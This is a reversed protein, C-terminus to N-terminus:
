CLSEGGIPFEKLLGEPRTDPFVFGLRHLEERTAADVPTIVSAQKKFRALLERIQVLQKKRDAETIECMQREFVDEEVFQFGPILELCLEQMEYCQGMIHFVSMESERLAVIAAACTDVPTLDVRRSAFSDPLMKAASLGLVDNYFANDSPNRQFRGDRSRGVLTGVRYIKARLGQEMEMRVMEEAMFKSRVYENEQWNQGIEFDSEDFEMHVTPCAKLFTGSVSLTSIHHFAAGAAVALDLMQRTGQCNTKTIQQDASFHRVDAACHYIDTVTEALRDWVEESLGLRHETLTFPIIEVRSVFEETRSAGFYHNWISYVKKLSSTRVLCIVNKTQDKLLEDLLHAGLYGTSGTLLVTTTVAGSGLQESQRFFAVQEAFTQHQYFQEMTMDLHQDYYCSLLLMAMLSTGGQEFFSKEPQIECDGLVRKWLRMLLTEVRDEEEAEVSADEINVAPVEGSVEAIVDEAGATEGMVMEETVAPEQMIFDEIDGEMLRRRDIKGNANIPIEELCVFQAPIMYAPLETELMKRMQREAKASTIGDQLAERSLVYFARLGRVNGEELIPVVVGQRIAPCSRMRVAIEEPELRQGNLKVQFDARGIFELNGDLRYRVLDRTRYMKGYEAFPDEFFNERNLEESNIYGGGLCEGALYLEGVATPPVPQRDADLCYCRCNGLPKGITICDPTVDRMGTAYVSAEAPGYLNILEADTVAKFKRVLEGTLAEGAVVMKAIYKLSDAFAKDELCINLRSPTMQMLGPRYQEMLQGLRWPLMMEEEDALVITRGYRLAFLTETYFTDFVMNTSCLVPGEQETLLYRISDSLNHIGRHNVVIGKPEGTSGSTFLVYMPDTTKRVIECQCESPILSEELNGDVRDFVIIPRDVLGTLKQENDCDCLWFKMSAIQEMRQLRSGPYSSLGPVYAAGTKMIAVMAALMDPTRRSILGVYDGCAIGYRKLLDAIQNVRFLFQDYTVKQEGAIIAIAQGERQCRREILRDLFVDQFPVCAENQEAFYTIQDFARINLIEQLTREPAAQLLVEILQELCTGYYEITEERFLATVYEFGFVYRSGSRATELNLEVKPAGFDIGEYVTEMGAFIFKEADIPRMSFLVQYFGNDGMTRKLHKMRILDELSVTQHDLMLQLTQSTQALYEEVTLSAEPRLRMPLTNVFPGCIDMTEALERGSLPTGVLLDEVQGIGRLLLGFAAAFLVFQSIGTKKSFQDCEASLAESLTLRYMSSIRRDAQDMGYDRPLHLVEPMEALQGEWAALDEARKKQGEQQIWYAYDKFTIEPMRTDGKMYCESLRELFLPTSLGDGLLHHMDIMLYAADSGDEWIGCHVLPPKSLDFPRLFAAIAQERTEAAICEVEIGSQPFIVQEPGQLTVRFGTRLIDDRSALVDMAKQLRDRDIGGQIRLMGPMHYALSDKGQVSQVYMSQQTATMPYAELLPAKPIHHTVGAKGEESLLSAIYEEMQRPTPYAFLDSPKLSLQFRENLHSIVEMVGLSNGGQRFYDNDMGFRDIQLSNAFIQQVQRQRHTQAEGLAVEFEPMPLNKDNIKGNETMEFASMQVYYHPVMYGPLREALYKRLELEKPAQEAVYYAALCEQGNQVVLKVYAQCINRHREMMGAIEHLDIRLGRLKIQHDTRGYLIVEGDETWAAEDGTFYMRQNWEFPCPVFKDATAEEDGLYGAALCKGGLYLFGRSGVPLPKKKENLVYMRCNSMPRGITIQRCQNVGKISVGVTAETPGYQNYINAGSYREVETILAAPLPEGGCIITQLKGLSRCFASDSMYSRLRSPTLSIFGVGYGCILDALAGPQQSQNETAMVVTRGELLAAASEIIFADFGISCVSLVARNGYYQDMAAAFNLLGTQTVEVGKPEGTTGSTYVIYASSHAARIRQAQALEEDEDPLCTEGASLDDIDYVPLTLEKQFEKTCEGDSILVVAGSKKIIELIRAKPLEHPILVWPCGALMSCCIGLFVGYGRDLLIAVTPKEGQLCWEIDAALKSSDCYLQHYTYKKDKCIVAVKRANDEAAQYFAERLTRDPLYSETDNFLYVVKEKEERSILNLENVPVEPHELMEELIDVLTHHLKCIEEESFMQLLFDYDVAYHHDDARNHLHICLQEIQYGSYHWSGGFRIQTDHNAMMRTDEYSLAIDFMRPQHNGLQQSIHQLEHMPLRQHKLLDFWQETVQMNMEMLSLEPHFECIFPITSVFMGSTQREAMSIRNFVPVGISFCSLNRSRNLYAALALYYVCFPSVRNEMCFQYIKHNLSESFCFSLRQGLPSSVVGCEQKISAPEWPKGLLARWYEQDQKKQFSDIYKKENELHVTYSPSVELKAGTDEQCKLYLSAIRNCLQMQTWGDSIIHHIRLFVGGHFEGTRFLAFRYLPGNCVSIPERASLEQWKEFAGQGSMIFDYLEFDQPRFPVYTQVPVGDQVQIQLRLSDDKELVENLVQSLLSIDLRGSIEITCSITNMPTGPLYQEMDWINLQSMSLQFFEIKEM